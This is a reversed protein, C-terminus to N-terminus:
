ASCLGGKDPRDAGGACVRAGVGCFAPRRLPRRKLRCRKSSCVVRVEDLLATIRLLRERERKLEEEIARDVM